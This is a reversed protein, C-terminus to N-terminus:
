FNRVTPNLFKDKGRLLESNETATISLFYLQNRTIFMKGYSKEVKPTVNGPPKIEFELGPFGGLSISRKSILTSNTRRLLDDLEADLAKEYPMDYDSFNMSYDVVCLLASGQGFVTSTYMRNTMTGGTMPTVIPERTKPESPMMVSMMSGSPHFERWKVKSSPKLLAAGGGGIAALLVLGGVVCLIVKLVPFGSNKKEYYNTQYQNQYGYNYGYNPPYQPPYQTSYAPQPQYAVHLSTNCKRCFEDQVFNIFGCNPCKMNNM